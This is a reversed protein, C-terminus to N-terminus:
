NQVRDRIEDIISPFSQMLRLYGETLVAIKFNEEEVFFDLCSGKLETCNHMEACGLVTAVTEPSVREWLQKACILKLRDLQYMDAAALLDQFLGDISSAASRELLEEDGPLADTYVFRLLARFTGPQIDQLAILPMKADAMSGLLQAKFVPSRAALVARHAAFEEGGVSFTVDSGDANELLHGLHRGIDSSPVPIPNSGDSLVVGCIFRVFGDTTLYDSELDSRQVFRPFGFGLLNDHPYVNLGTRRSYRSSPKGDKHQVFAEFIAKVKKSKSVLRLFLSLYVIGDDADTNGLQQYCIVKWMHGGASIEDSCCVFKDIGLNQAEGFPHDSPAWSPVCERNPRTQEM